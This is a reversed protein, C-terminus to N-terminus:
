QQQKANATGIAKLNTDRETGLILIPFSITKHIQLCSQSLLCPFNENVNSELSSPCTKSAILILFLHTSFTLLFIYLPFTQGTAPMLSGFSFFDCSWLVFQALLGYFHLITDKRPWTPSTISLTLFLATFQQQRLSLSAWRAM